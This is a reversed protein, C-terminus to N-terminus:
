YPFHLTVNLGVWWYTELMGINESTSDSLITLVRDLSIVAKGSIGARM